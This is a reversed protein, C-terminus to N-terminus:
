NGIRGAARSLGTDTASVSMNLNSALSIRGANDDVNAYGESGPSNGITQSSRISTNYNPAQLQRTPRLTTQQPRFIESLNQIDAAQWM